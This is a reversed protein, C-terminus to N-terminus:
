DPIDPRPADTPITTLDELAQRLARTAEEVQETSMSPRIRVTVDYGARRKRRTVAKLPRGGNSAVKATRTVEKAAAAGKEAFAQLAELRTSFEEHALINCLLSIPASDARRVAPALRPDQLARYITLYDGIQTKEWPLVAALKRTSIEDDRDISLYRSTEGILRAIHLTSFDKWHCYEAAMLKLAEGEDLDSRVFVRIKRPLRGELAGLQWARVRRHGFLIVYSGDPKRWAHPPNQLGLELISVLLDAVNEESHREPPQVEHPQLKFVSITRLKAVSRNEKEGDSPQNAAPTPLREGDRRAM